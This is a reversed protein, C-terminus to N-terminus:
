LDLRYCSPVRVIPVARSFLPSDNGETLDRVKPRFFNFLGLTLFQLFIVTAPHFRTTPLHSTDHRNDLLIM